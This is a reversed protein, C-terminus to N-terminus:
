GLLKALLEFHVGKGFFGAFGMVVGFLAFVGGVGLLWRKKTLATVGLLAISISLAAEAMDFQDDHVNLSEYQKRYGEAQKKVEAKEQDYRKVEAQYDAIRKDLIARAEPTLASSTDRQIMLQSAVSEALNQKTSKAQYLSWTNVENAQAQAMAQVINGDKVNCLAVFTAILAVSAAIVNNLSSDKDEGEGGTGAKEVAESVVDAVDAM